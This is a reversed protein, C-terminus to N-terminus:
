LHHVRIRKSWAYRVCGVKKTHFHCPPFTIADRVWPSAHNRELLIESHPRLLSFIKSCFSKDRWGGVRKCGWAVVSRNSGLSVVLRSMHEIRARNRERKSAIVASSKLLEL